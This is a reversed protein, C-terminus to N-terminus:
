YDWVETYNLWKKLRDSTQVQPLTSSQILSQKSCLIIKRVQSCVHVQREAGSNSNLWMYSFWESTNFASHLCHKVDTKTLIYVIGGAEGYLDGGSMKIFFYVM